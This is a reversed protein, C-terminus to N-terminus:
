HEEKYFKILETLFKIYEKRAVKYDTIIMEDWSSYTIRQPNKYEDLVIVYNGNEPHDCVFTFSEIKM